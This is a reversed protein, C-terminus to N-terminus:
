ILDNILKFEQCTRSSVDKSHSARKYRHKYCGQGRGELCALLLEQTWNHCDFMDEESM